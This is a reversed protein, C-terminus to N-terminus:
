LFILKEDKQQVYLVVLIKPKSLKESEPGEGGLVITTQFKKITQLAYADITISSNM